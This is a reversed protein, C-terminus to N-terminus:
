RRRRWRRGGCNSTVRLSVTAGGDWDSVAPRGLLTARVVPCKPLKRAVEPPVADLRVAYQSLTYHGAITKGDPTIVFPAAARKKFDQGAQKPILCGSNPRRLLVGGPRTKSRAAGRCCHTGARAALV